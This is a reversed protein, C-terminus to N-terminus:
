SSACLEGGESKEKYWNTKKSSSMMQTADLQPLTLTLDSVNSPFGYDIIRNRKDDLFFLGLDLDSRGEYLTQLRHVTTINPDPTSLNMVMQIGTDKKRLFDQVLDFGVSFIDHFITGNGSPDMTSWNLGPSCDFNVRVKKSMKSVQLSPKCRSFKHIQFM